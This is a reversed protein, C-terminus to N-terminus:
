RCRSPDVLREEPSLAQKGAAGASRYTTGAVSVVSKGAQAEVWALAGLARRDGLGLRFWALARSKSKRGFQAM